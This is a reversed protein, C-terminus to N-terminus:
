EASRLYSEAGWRVEKGDDSLSGAWESNGESPNVGTHTSRYHERRIQVKGNRMEITAVYNATEQAQIHLMECDFVNTDGRRTWKGNWDGDRFICSHGLKPCVISNIETRRSPQEIPATAAAAMNEAASPTRSDGAIVDGTISEQPAPLTGGLPSFALRLGLDDHRFDPSRGIYDSSTCAWSMGKWSGGGAFKKDIEDSKSDCWEWVNGHMDHLGWLNPKKLGVPQLQEGSNGLHWAFEGLQQADDGFSYTTTTGARCAYQWEEATPLRYARGLVKEQPLESLLRCFEM